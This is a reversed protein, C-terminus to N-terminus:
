MKDIYAMLKVDYTTDTAWNGKGLQQVYEAIGREIYSFRTDICDLKLPNTSAYGKLHQVQTRIGTRVDPFTAGSLGGDMAGLGAFNCQNPQVQGGFQLYATEHCIQAFVVEPKVGEICAEEYVIKCFEQITAAGKDKYVEAPYIKGSAQYMDVMQAETVEANGMIRYDASNTSVTDSFVGYQIMRNGNITIETYPRVRYYYHEAANVATDTYSVEATAAVKTQTAVGSTSSKYLEYGTVNVASPTWTIQIASKDQNWGISNISLKAVACGSAASSLESGVNYIDLAKIKYYYTTGKEVATDAYSTAATAPVIGIETYIGNAETSRYVVYNAAGAVPSWVVNLQNEAVSTVTVTQPAAMLVGSVAESYKGYINKGKHEGIIVIKYFYQTGTVASTDVYRTNKAGSVTSILDYNGNLETSRYVRYGKTNKVLNWNIELLGQANKSVSTISTSQAPYGGVAKSKGSSSTSKYGKIHAEVKYFYKRNMILKKDIYSTESGEASGIKKYTGKKTDSRYIDYRSVGSIPEWSVEIKTATNGTVTVTPNAGSWAGRVKSYSGYGIGSKNKYRTKIKYYYKTDSELDGVKYSTTNGSKITKIKKYGDNKSTSQYIVYGNVGDVKKWSLTQKAPSNSVIKTISTQKLTKGGAAKGFGSKGKVGNNYNIAQVVYYYKTNQKINTDDYHNQSASDITAIKKFKGTASKSRKIVYGSAFEDEQWSIRLTESDLSDVSLNGPIKATRGAVPASYESYATTNDVQGVCRIKYYYLKGAKVKKDTYSVRNIGAVTAIKKYEGNEQGSRYIEYNAASNVTSWSISLEKSNISKISSIVPSTMTTGSAVTSYKGYKIDDKTQTYTRIKYYYTTGPNLGTDKWTTTAASDIKAVEEFGDGSSTSRYICYGTVGVIQSWSLNMTSGDLSQISNFGLGKVLGYYEAIATADAVGLKKLQEDTSLYNQADSANSIFAHEVILGPIGNEKCRKIVGYYDALSGDPYKTGNESDRIRVGGSALGLDTLKSEIVTALAKGTTGCNANYNGNPYFVCAGSPAASTSSNNHLSIFVDAKKDVAVQARQALTLYTDDNRTMYVTVGSYEELEAKCYQAIKLNVTKEVVGNAQAGPDSGGHGADLVVVLSKMGRPTTGAGKRGQQVDTNAAEAECGANEMAQEISEESILKGDEDFSVIDLETEAALAEAEEETLLVDDPTTKVTRNVGFAAEIGMEGFSTTTTNGSVTYTIGELQYSGTQSEDKYEMQFMVFNDLIEASEVEYIRNTEQNRYSLVAQEIVTDEDGIGLMVRQTGPTSVIPEGVVVYNVLAQSIESEEQEGENVEEEVAAMETTVTAAWTESYGATLIMFLALMWATLRKVRRM